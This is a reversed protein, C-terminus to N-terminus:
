TFVLFLVPVVVIAFVATNVVWLASGLRSDLDFVNSIMVMSVAAPCASQVMVVSQAMHGLGRGTLALLWLLLAAVIPTLLFKVAALSFYLPIYYRLRTFTIRLGIAFFSLSSAVYVFIDVIHFRSIFQPRKIGSLNLVVAIIIVPVVLMRYDLVSRVSFGTKESQRMRLEFIRLRPFFILYVVPAWLMVYIQSLGLGNQGFLAYCVFMGGTYGLNSLGGALILTMRSKEDLDHFAFLFRCLFTVVLLLVAGIVPLWFFETTLEMQWIIFLGIPWNLGLLVVTMIKRALQESLGFRNAALYGTGLGGLLVVFMSLFRLNTIDQATLGGWISAYVSFM